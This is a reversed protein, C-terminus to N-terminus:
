AYFKAASVELISVLGGWIEDPDSVAIGEGKGPM